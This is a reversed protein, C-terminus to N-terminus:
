AHQRSQGGGQSPGSRSPDQPGYTRANGHLRREPDVEPVAPEGPPLLEEAWAVLSRLHEVRHALREPDPLGATASRLRIVEAQEQAVWEPAYPLAAELLQDRAQAVLTLTSPVAIKALVHTADKLRVRDKVLGQQRAQAILAQFIQQHTEPGLRQRFHALLSPHPLPSRLSLDLFFRFAM